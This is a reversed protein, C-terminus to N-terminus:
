SRRRSWKSCGAGGCSVYSACARSGDRSCSRTAFRQSARFSRQRALKQPNSEILTAICGFVDLQTVPSRDDVLEALLPGVM